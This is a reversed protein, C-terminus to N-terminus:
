SLSRLMFKSSRDAKVPFFFIDKNDTVGLQFKPNHIFAVLHLVILLM